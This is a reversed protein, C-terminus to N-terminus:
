ILCKRLLSLFYRNLFKIFFPINAEKCVNFMKLCSEYSFSMPKQCIVPVKHKAAMLVYEEHVKMDAIIDVFDLEENQFMEEPNEYKKATEIAKEKTRNYLAVLEVGGVEFWAPIQLASWFGTGIVAFKLKKM